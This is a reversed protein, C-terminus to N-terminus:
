AERVLYLELENGVQIRLYKDSRHGVHFMIRVARIGASELQKYGACYALRWEDQLRLYFGCSLPHLDETGPEYRLNYPYLRGKLGVNIQLRAGANDYGERVKWDGVIINLDEVVDWTQIDVVASALPALSPGPGPTPPPPEGPGEDIHMVLVAVAAATVALFVWILWIKNQSM